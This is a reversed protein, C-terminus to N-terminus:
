LPSRDSPDQRSQRDEVGYLNRLAHLSVWVSKRDAARPPAARKDSHGCPVTSLVSSLCQTLRIARTSHRCRPTAQKQPGPLARFDM